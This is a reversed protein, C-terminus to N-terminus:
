RNYPASPILNDIGLKEKRNNNWCISIMAAMGRGHNRSATTGASAPRSPRCPSQGPTSGGSCWTAGTWTAMMVTLTGSASASSTPGSTSRPSATTTATRPGPTATSTPRRCAPLQATGTTSAPRPRSCTITAAPRTSSSLTSPSTRRSRSVPKRLQLRDTGEPNDFVDNRILDPVNPNVQPQQKWIGSSNFAVINNAVVVREELIDFAMAGGWGGQNFLFDKAINGVFTNNLILVDDLHDGSPTQSVICYIGAGQGTALEEQEARNGAIVNNLIRGNFCTPM